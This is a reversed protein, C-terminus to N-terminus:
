ERMACEPGKRSCRYTRYMKKFKLPNKKGNKHGGSHTGTMWRVFIHTAFEEGGSQFVIV